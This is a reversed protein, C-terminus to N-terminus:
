CCGCCSDGGTGLFCSSERVKIPSGAPRIESYDFVPRAKGLFHANLLVSLSEVWGERSDGVIHQVSPKSDRIGKVLLAAPGEAGLTDFGVGVGLMAADMLFCFPRSPDERSKQRLDATSVFACNNLAAFLGREETIPSGMAWLGRGPPLFKMSFIREYMEQASRQARWANWGLQHQEIWRKQMSYTGNVVREVTDHWQEKEGDKKLRSYTRAYVFEGLGNFGFPAEQQAQLGVFRPTLRFPAGETSQAQIFLDDDADVGGYVGPHEVVGSNVSSSYAVRHPLTAVGKFVEPLVPVIVSTSKWGHGM